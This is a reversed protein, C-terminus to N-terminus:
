RRSSRLDLAQHRLRRSAKLFEVHPLCEAWLALVLVLVLADLGAPPLFGLGELDQASWLAGALGGLIGASLLWSQHQERPGAVMSFMTGAAQVGVLNFATTLFIFVPISLSSLTWAGASLALLMGCITRDYAPRTIVQSVGLLLLGLGTGMLFTAYLDEIHCLTAGCELPIRPLAVYIIARSFQFVCFVATSLLLGCTRPPEILSDHLFSHERDRSSLETLISLDLLGVQSSLDLHRSLSLRLFLSVGEFGIALVVAYLGPMVWMLLGIALLLYNPSVTQFAYTALLGLLLGAFVGVDRMLSLRKCAKLRQKLRSAESIYTIELMECAGLWLATWCGSWIWVVESWNFTWSLALLPYGTAGVLGAIALAVCISRFQLVDAYVRTFIMATQKTVLFAAM